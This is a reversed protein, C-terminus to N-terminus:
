SARPGWTAMVVPVVLESRIFNLFDQSERDDPTNWGTLHCWVPRAEGVRMTTTTRVEPTGIVPACDRMVASNPFAWAECVSIERRGALRDLHTLVLGDLRGAISLGLRAAVLDFWGLRMPGQWPGARNHPEPLDLGPDEAVFP